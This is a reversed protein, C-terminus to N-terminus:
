KRLIRGKQTSLVIFKSVSRCDQLLWWGWLERAGKKYGTEEGPQWGRCCQNSIKRQLKRERLTVYISDRILYAKSDQKRRRAYHQQSTDVKSYTDTSQREKNTLPIRMIHIYWLRNVWGGASPRKPQKCSKVIVFLTAVFM